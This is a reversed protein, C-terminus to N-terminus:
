SVNMKANLEAVATDAIPFQYIEINNEHIEEMIQLMVVSCLDFANM